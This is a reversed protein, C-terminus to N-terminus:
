ITESGWEIVGRLDKLTTMRSETTGDEYDKIFARLGDAHQYFLMHRLINLSDSPDKIGIYIRMIQEVPSLTASQVPLQKVNPATKVRVMDPIESNNTPPRSVVTGRGGTQITKKIFFTTMTVIDPNILLPKLEDILTRLPTNVAAMLLNRLEEDNADPFVNFRLYHLFYESSLSKYDELSATEGNQSM